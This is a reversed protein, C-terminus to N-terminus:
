SLFSFGRLFPSIYDHYQLLSRNAHLFNDFFQRFIKMFFKLFIEFVTYFADPQSVNDQKWFRETESTPFAISFTVFGRKKSKVTFEIKPVGNPGM